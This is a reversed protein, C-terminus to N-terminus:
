DFLGDTGAFGLASIPMEINLVDTVSAVAARRMSGPSFM